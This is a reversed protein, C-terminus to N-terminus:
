GCVKILGLEECRKEEDESLRFGDISDEGPDWVSLSDPLYCDQGNSDTHVLYKGDKALLLYTTGSYNGNNQHDYSGLEECTQTDYRTGNLTAKM